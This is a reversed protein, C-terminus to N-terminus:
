RRKAFVLELGDVEDIQTGVQTFGLSRVVALSPANDPEISAYVEDEGQTFAWEVLARASEKAFDQGRFAMFVTYGIEARGIVEPPGHFGCHGIAAGDARAVMLRAMWDRREPSARMRELQLPLFGSREGRAPFEAPLTVGLMSEAGARDDALLREIAAPALPVLDLRGTRLTETM